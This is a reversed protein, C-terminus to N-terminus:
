EGQMSNYIAMATAISSSSMPNNGLSGEIQNPLTIIKSKSFIEHLTKVYQEAMKLRIADESLEDDDRKM